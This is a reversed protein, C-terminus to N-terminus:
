YKNSELENCKCDYILPNFYQKDSYDFTGGQFTSSGRILFEFWFMLLAWLQQFMNSRYGSVTFALILFTCAYM